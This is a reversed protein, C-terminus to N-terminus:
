APAEVFVAGPCTCAKSGRSSGGAWTSQARLHGCILPCGHPRRRLRAARPGHPDWGREGLCTQQAWLSVPPSTRIVKSPNLTRDNRDQTPWTGGVAGWEAVPAKKASATALAGRTLYLLPVGFGAVHVVGYGGWLPCLQLHWGSGSRTGPLESSDAILTDQWLKNGHESLSTGVELSTEQPQAFGRGLSCPAEELTWREGSSAWMPHVVPPGTCLCIHATHPVQSSSVTGLWPCALIPDWSKLGPVNWMDSFWNLVLGSPPAWPACLHGVPVMPVPVRFFLLFMVPSRRSASPLVTRATGPEALLGVSPRNVTRLPKHFSLHAFGPPCPPQNRSDPSAAIRFDRGM